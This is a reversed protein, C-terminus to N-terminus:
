RQAMQQTISSYRFTLLKLISIRIDYALYKTFVGYERCKGVVVRRVIQRINASSKANGHQIVKNHKKGVACLIRSLRGHVSFCQHSDTSSGSHGKAYSFNGPFSNSRFPLVFEFRHTICNRLKILSQVCRKMFVYVSNAKGPLVHSVLAVSVSHLTFAMNALIYRYSAIIKDM